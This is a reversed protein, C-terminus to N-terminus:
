HVKLDNFPIFIIMSVAYFDTYWYWSIPLTKTLIKVTEDKRSWNFETTSVGTNKNATKCEDLKM